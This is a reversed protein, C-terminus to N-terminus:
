ESFFNLCVLQYVPRLRSLLPSLFTITVCMFPLFRSGVRPVRSRRVYSTSSGSASCEDALFVSCDRWWDLPLVSDLSIPLRKDLHVLNDGPKIKVSKTWDIFFSCIYNKLPHDETGSYRMSVGCGKTELLISCRSISSTSHKVQSTTCVCPWTVKRRNAKVESSLSSTRTSGDVYTVFTLTPYRKFCFALVSPDGCSRPVPDWCVRM